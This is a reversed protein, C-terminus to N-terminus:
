HKQNAVVSLLIQIVKDCQLVCLEPTTNDITVWRMLHPMWEEKSINKTKYTGTLKEKVKYSARGWHYLGNKDFHGETYRHTHQTEQTFHLPQKIGTFLPWRHGRATPPM